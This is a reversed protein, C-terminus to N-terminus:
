SIKKYFELLKKEEKEWNLIRRAKLCNQQLETYLIGDKLLKNVADAITTIQLDDILVAVEYEDNIKKYEPFNMSVQPLANQVYDFFKNALSYYQNLGTFEVLNIGIYASQTIADLHEPLVKGMVFAKDQLNNLAILEKTQEMFNGDGYIHLTADVDKMAPILFELGRAENVAGQYIIIKEKHLSTSLRGPLPVNRIVEYDAGYLKKFEAAISHSVTYGNKFKPVFTREIWKWVRHVGRRTMIEKQQSFYEHADYVRQKNKLKGALWVPLMTDLDICCIIDTRVFLLYFFLRINYEAYFGLGKTFLTFLRKQRYKKPILLASRSNKNGILTVAWGAETLSTCIRIMRQDYNLDNTVTFVIRKLVPQKPILKFGLL